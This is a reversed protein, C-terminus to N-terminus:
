KFVQQHMAMIERVLSAVYFVPGTANAPVPSLSVDMGVRRVLYRARFVHYSDSVLIASKWGHAAMIDRTNHAQEETSQSAEELVIAELPVGDRMLIERCGDAESRLVRQQPGIGGTCIITGALGKKWLAAAHESRRTLALYPKGDKTLAAGLVIIVDSRVAADVTGTYFIAAALLTCGGLWSALLVLVLRRVRRFLRDMTHPRM